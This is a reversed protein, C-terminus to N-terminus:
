RSPCTAALRRADQGFRALTAHGNEAKLVDNMIDIVIGGAPGTLQGAEHLEDGVGNADVLWAHLGDPGPLKHAALIEKSLAHADTCWRTNQAPAPTSGQGTSVFGGACGSLLLASAGAAIMAAAKIKM